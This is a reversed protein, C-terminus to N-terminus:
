ARAREKRRTAKRRRTESLLWEARAQAKQEKKGLPPGIAKFVTLLECLAGRLEQILRSDTM